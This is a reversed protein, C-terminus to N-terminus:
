CARRAAARAKTGDDAFQLDDREAYKLLLEDVVGLAAKAEALHQLETASLVDLTFNRAHVAKLVDLADALANRLEQRTTM